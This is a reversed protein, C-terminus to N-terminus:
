SLTAEHDNSAGYADENGDGGESKGAGGRRLVGVHNAAPDDRDVANRDRVGSDRGRRDRAIDIAACLRIPIAAVRDCKWVAVAIVDHLEDGQPVRRPLILELTGGVLVNEDRVGRERGGRVREVGHVDGGRAVLRVAVVYCGVDAAGLLCDVGRRERGILEAIERRHGRRDGAHVIDRARVAVGGAERHEPKCGVLVAGRQVPHVRVGGIKRAIRLQSCREDRRGVIHRLAPEATPSLVDAQARARVDIPALGPAPARASSTM